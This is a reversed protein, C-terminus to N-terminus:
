STALVLERVLGACLRRIENKRTTPSKRELHPPISLTYLKGTQLLFVFVLRNANANHSFFLGASVAVCLSPWVASETAVACFRLLARDLHHVGTKNKWLFFALIVSLIVDLVLVATTWYSFSIVSLIVDSPKPNVASLRSFAVAILINAVYTTITFAFLVAIWWNGKTVRWCRRLLFLKNIGSIFGNLFIAFWARPIRLLMRSEVNAKWAIYGEFATQALSLLTVFAVFLNRGWSDEYCVEYYQGAEIVIIGQFFFQIFVGVLIAGPPEEVAHITRDTVINM